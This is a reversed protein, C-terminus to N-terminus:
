LCFGRCCVRLFFICLHQAVRAARRAKVEALLKESHEQQIEYIGHSWEAFKDVQKAEFIQGAGGIQNLIWRRLMIKWKSCRQDDIPFNPPYILNIQSDPYDLPLTVAVTMARITLTYGGDARGGTEARAERTEVM